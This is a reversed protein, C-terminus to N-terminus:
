LLQQKLRRITNGSDSGSGKGMDKNGAAVATVYISTTRPCLFNCRSRSYPQDLASNLQLPANKYLTCAPMTIKSGFDITNHLNNDNRNKLNRKARQYGSRFNIKGM